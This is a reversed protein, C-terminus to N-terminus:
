EFSNDLWDNGGFRILISIEAGNGEVFLLGLLSVNDLSRDAPQFFVASDYSAELFSSCVLHAHKLHREDLPKYSKNNLTKQCLRTEEAVRGPFYDSGVNLYNM